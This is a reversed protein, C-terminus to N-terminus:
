DARAKGVTDNPLDSAGRPVGIGSFPRDALLAETDVVALMERTM